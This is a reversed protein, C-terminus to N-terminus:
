KKGCCLIENKQVMIKKLLPLGKYVPLLVLLFLYNIWIVILLYKELYYLENDQSYAISCKPNIPNFKYDYFSIKM